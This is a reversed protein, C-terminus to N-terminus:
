RLYALVLGEEEGLAGLLGAVLRDTQCNTEGERVAPSAYSRALVEVEELSLGAQEEELLTVMVRSQLMTHHSVVLADIM